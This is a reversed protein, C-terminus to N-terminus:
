QAEPKNRKAMEMGALCAIVLLGIIITSYGYYDSAGEKLVSFRGWLLSMRGMVTNGYAIGLGIMIFLVGASSVYKIAGKHEVSFLFYILISITASFVFISGLLKFILESTPMSASMLYGFDGAAAQTQPLILGGITSPIAVGSAYGILFAFSFRSLWSTKKHVRSFVILGLIIPIILMWKNTPLESISKGEKSLNQVPEVIVDYIASKYYYPIAYGIATGVFLHEAFKYLFNDKFLFSLIFLTLAVEVWMDIRNLLTITDPSM